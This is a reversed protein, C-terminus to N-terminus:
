IALGVFPDSTPAQLDEIQANLRALIIPRSENFTVSHGLGYYDAYRSGLETWWTEAPITDTGNNLAQHIAGIAAPFSTSKGM